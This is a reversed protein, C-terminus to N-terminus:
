PLVVVHDNLVPPQKLFTTTLVPKVTNSIKTTVNASYPPNFWIMKRKEIKTQHQQHIVKNLSLKKNFNAPLYPTTIYIKLITSHVPQENIAQM